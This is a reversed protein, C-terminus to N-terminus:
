PQVTPYAWTDTPVVPHMYYRGALALADNLTPASGILRSRHGGCKTWYARYKVHWAGSDRYIEFEGDDTFWVGPSSAYASKRSYM